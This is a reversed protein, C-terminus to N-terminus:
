RLRVPGSLVARFFEELPFPKVLHVTSGAQAAQGALHDNAASSTSIIRATCGARRLSRILWLGDLVPHDVDVVVVGAGTSMVQYIADVDDLAVHVAQVGEILECCAALMERVMPNSDAVVVRM